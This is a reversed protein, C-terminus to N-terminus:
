RVSGRVTFKRGLRSTGTYGSRVSPRRPMMSMRPRPVPFLGKGFFDRRNALRESAGARQLSGVADRTGQRSARRAIEGYIRSLEDPAIKANERGQRVGRYFDGKGEKGGIISKYEPDNAISNRRYTEVSHPRAKRGTIERFRRGYQSRDGFVNPYWSGLRRKGGVTMSAADARAEENQLSRTPMRRLGLSTVRGKRSGGVAHELEHRVIKPDAGRASNASLVVTRGRGTPGPSDMTYNPYSGSRMKKEKNWRVTTPGKLKLGAAQSEVISRVGAPMRADVSLGPVSTAKANGTRARRTVLATARRGAEADPNPNPRRSRLGRIADAARQQPSAGFGSGSRINRAVTGQAKPSLSALSRYVGGGVYTKGVPVQRGRGYEGLAARERAKAKIKGM